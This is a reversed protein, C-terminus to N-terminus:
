YTEYLAEMIRKINYDQLELHAHIEAIADQIKENVKADLDATQKDMDEQTINMGLNELGVLFSIISVCDLFTFEGREGSGLM